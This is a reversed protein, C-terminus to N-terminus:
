QHVAIVARAYGSAARVALIREAYWLSHLSYISWRVHDELDPCQARVLRARMQYELTTM